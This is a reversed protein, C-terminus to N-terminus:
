PIPEFTGVMEPVWGPLGLDLCSSRALSAISGEKSSVDVRISTDQKFGTDVTLKLIVQFGIPLSSVCSTKDPHLRDEDSAVLTLCVNTLDKGSYNQIIPYANTVEGMQHKLDFSTKCGLIDLLLGPLPTLTAPITVPFNSPVETLSIIIPLATSTPTTSPFVRPTPSIIVPTSSPHGLPTIAALPINMGGCAALLSLGIFALILKVM